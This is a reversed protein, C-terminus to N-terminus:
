RFSRAVCRAAVAAGDHDFGLHQRASAALGAPHLVAGVGVDGCLLGFRNQGQVDLAERHALHEDGRGCVDEALDIEADHHVARRATGHQHRAGGAAHVDFLHGGSRGLFDDFDRDVREDAEGVMDRAVDGYVNPQRALM